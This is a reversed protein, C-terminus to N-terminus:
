IKGLCSCTLNAPKEAEEGSLRQICKKKKKKKM